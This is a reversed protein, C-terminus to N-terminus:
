NSIFIFQIGTRHPQPGKELFQVGPLTKGTGISTRRFLSLIRKIKNKKIINLQYSDFKPESRQIKNNLNLEKQSKYYNTKGIWFNQYKKM